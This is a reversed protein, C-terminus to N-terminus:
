ATAATVQKPECESHKKVIQRELMEAIESPQVPRSYLYGQMQDCKMKRLCELQEETEVAEAIVKLDMNHAMSIIADAISYSNEGSSSNDLRKVFSGDMKLIDLPLESLYSLSSYGTGFDDISIKIGFARLESIVEKSRHLNDILLGETIELEVTAPDVNTENIIARVHAALEPHRLQRASLNVAIKIPPLGADRWQKNQICATRLVWEGIPIILGTEEAFPIFQNPTIFGLQPHNWRILAEVGIISHTLIDVQPQYQLFLEGRFLAHRLESKLMLPDISVRSMDSSYLRYINQGVAKARLIAVDAKKILGDIDRDHDPFLAVGISVTLFCETEGLVMPEYFEEIIKQAVVHVGNEDIVDELIISFEDGDWRSVTDCERLCKKIREAVKILAEDGKQYGLANNLEKFKNIDLTLLALMLNHRTARHMAHSLRDRFIHRNPLGTMPDYHALSAQRWETEGPERVEAALGDPHAGAGTELAGQKQNLAVAESRALDTISILQEAFSGILAPKDLMDPSSHRISRNRGSAKAKYLAQDARTITLTVNEGTQYRAIGISVTVTLTSSVDTFDIRETEIRVREALALAQDLDTEPLMLLFEEGGYRGFSDIARINSEVAKAFTRLVTDGVAHGYTDNIRKFHDIDLLCVCFSTALRDARGKEDEILKLLHRRNFTGTLEDRIALEQIIKLAQELKIFGQTKTLEFFLVFIVVVVFLGVGCVSQLLLPDEIPSVPLQVGAVELSYIGVVAACSMVLWFIGTAVGGLLMAVVPCIILWAATPAEVGGLHYTLWCFNCYVACVFVEEAIKIRGTLKLLFPASVMFAGCLLIVPTASQFGLLYYFLAYFPDSIGAIAAASVVNQSRSLALPNNQLREPIFWHVVSLYRKILSAVSAGM